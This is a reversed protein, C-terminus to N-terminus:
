RLMYSLDPLGNVIDLVIKDEKLMKTEGTVVGLSFIDSNMSVQEVPKVSEFVSLDWSDDVGAPGQNQQVPISKKPEPEPSRGFDVSSSYIHKQITSMPGKPPTITPASDRRGLAGNDKGLGILGINLTGMSNRNSPEKQVFQPPIASIKPIKAPVPSGKYGFQQPISGLNPTNAPKVPSIVMDGWDDEDPLQPTETTKPIIMPEKSQNQQITGFGSFDFELANQQKFPETVQAGNQEFLGLSGWQHNSNSANPITNENETPAQAASLSITETTPLVLSGWDDMDDAPPRSSRPANSHATEITSITSEKDANSVAGKSSRDSTFSLTSGTSFRATSNRSSTSQKLGGGESPGMPSTNSAVESSLDAVPTSGEIKKASGWGLNAEPTFNEVSGWGFSAPGRKSEDFSGWSSGRKHLADAAVSSSANIEGSNLTIGGSSVTAFPTFDEEDKGSGWGFTGGLDKKSVALPDWSPVNKQLTDAAVKAKAVADMGGSTLSIGGSGLTALPTFHEGNGGGWGFTAVPDKKQLTDTAASAVANFGGSSMTTVAEKASEWRGFNAMSDKSTALSDWSPANKQLTDTATSAATNLGGSALAIGGSGLTAVPTFDKEGGWGFTVVPEHEWGSINKHLTDAVSAVANVGGSSLSAAAEKAGGWGFSSVSEKDWGSAHEQLTDATAKARAIADMGGSALNIGGSGLTALPTFNDNGSRWGFTAVSDKKQLTDATASAAANFGGSSLTAAAEKAGRWGFSSVSEKDWGSAHEHLTDAVAKAKAVADMGETTLNIGGSGLTAIPTFDENGSGWGFTAVSDKKQLIDAASAAANIGGSSLNAVVEKAGGWGFSSVSEKDWSSAHEQSTDAAAKVKAVADMGGSALAVGRSSLTAVPTFEGQDNADGWGFTAMPEKKLAEWGPVQKQLTDAAAKAKTVADMGRSSFTDLTAVPTFGEEEKVSGWGFNVSPEKKLAAFSEWSPAQMQLTDAAAKAKAVADMGGSALSIGGSGLTAVPTFGGEEKTGGWGFTVVPEKDWGDVKKQVKDAAASAAAKMEGVGGASGGVGLTEVPTFDVVERVSGWGFDVAAAKKKEGAKPNWGSISFSPKHAQKAGELKGVVRGVPMSFRDRNHTPSGRGTTGAGEGWGFMAGYGRGGSIGDSSM